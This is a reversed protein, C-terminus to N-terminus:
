DFEITDIYSSWQDQADEWTRSNSYFRVEWFTEEDLFFLLLETWPQGDSEGETLIYYNDDEGMLLEGEIQQEKVYAKTLEELSEDVSYKAMMTVLDYDLAWIETRDEGWSEWMDNGNNTYYDPLTIEFGRHVFTTTQDTAADNDTTDNSGTSSSTGTGENGGINVNTDGDVNGSNACATLLAILCMLAVLFVIVKKM